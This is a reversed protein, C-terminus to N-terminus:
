PTFVVDDRVWAVPMITKPFVDKKAFGDTSFFSMQAQMKDYAFKSLTIQIWRYDKGTLPNKRDKGQEVVVKGTAVGILREKNPMTGYINNIGGNNVSASTRVKVADVKSYIKAGKIKGNSVLSDLKPSLKNQSVDQPRATPDNNPTPTTDDGKGSDDKPKKYILYLGGGLALVSAVLYIPKIRM